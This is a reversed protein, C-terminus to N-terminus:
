SLSCVWFNAIAGKMAGEKHKDKRDDQVSSHRYCQLQTAVCARGAASGLLFMPLLHDAKSKSTSAAEGKAQSLSTVIYDFERVFGSFVCGRSVTPLVPM